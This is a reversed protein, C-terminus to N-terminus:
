ATSLEPADFESSVINFRCDQGFHTSRYDNKGTYIEGREERWVRIM